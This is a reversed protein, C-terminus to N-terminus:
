RTLREIDSRWAPYALCLTAREGLEFEEKRFEPHVSVGFLAFADERADEMLRMGQWVGGPVVVARELDSGLQVIRGGGAPNLQLMQAPHGEYFHFLEDSPLRHMASFSDKTILFFIASALRSVSSELQRAHTYFRRFYGGEGPLPQLDYKAIIQAADV